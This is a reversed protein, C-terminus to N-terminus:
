VGSGGSVVSNFGWYFLPVVESFGFVHLSPNMSAWNAPSEPIRSTGRLELGDIRWNGSSSSGSGGYGHIMVQTLSSAVVNGITIPSTTVSYLNWSSNNPTAFDTEYALVGGTWIRFRLNVPGTSTSRSYFRIDTVQHGTPNFEFQFRTNLSPNFVIPACSANLNYGGQPSQSNVSMITPLPPYSSDNIRSISGVYSAYDISPDMFTARPAMDNSVSVSGDPGNWQYILKANVPSEIHNLLNEATSTSPPWTPSGDVRRIVSGIRRQKELTDEFFSRRQSDFVFEGFTPGTPSYISRWVKGNPDSNFYIALFHWGRQVGFSSPSFICVSDDAVVSLTGLSTVLTMHGNSSPQTTGNFNDAAFLAASITGVYNRVPIRLTFQGQATNRIFIPVFYIPRSASQWGETGDFLTPPNSYTIFSPESGSAAIMKTTPWGFLNRHFIGSNEVKSTLYSTDAIGHVDTTDIRHAEVADAVNTTTALTGTLGHVNTSSSAHSNLSSLNSNIELVDRTKDRELQWGNPTVILDIIETRYFSVSPDGGDFSIGAKYPLEYYNNTNPGANMGGSRYYWYISSGSSANIAALAPNPPLVSPHTFAAVVYYNAQETSDYHFYANTPDNLWINGSGANNDLARSTIIISQPGRTRVSLRIRDGVSATAGALKWDPLRIERAPGLPGSEITGYWTLDVLVDTGQISKVIKYPSSGAALSPFLSGARRRLGDTDTIGHVNTTDSEHSSLNALTALQTTNAIGHVNTTDAEHAALESDTTYGPSVLEVYSSSLTKDGYGTYVFSQTTTIVITGRVISEQQALTLAGLSSVSIAGLPIPASAAPLIPVQGIAPM